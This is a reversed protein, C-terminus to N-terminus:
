SVRERMSISLQIYSKKFLNSNSEGVFSFIPGTAVDIITIAIRFYSEPKCQYINTILVFSLTLNCFYLECIIEHFEKLVKRGNTFTVFTFNNNEIDSKEFCASHTFCPLNM